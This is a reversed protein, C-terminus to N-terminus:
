AAKPVHQNVTALTPTSPRLPVWAEDTRISWATPKVTNAEAWRRMLRGHCFWDAFQQAVSLEPRGERITPTTSTM